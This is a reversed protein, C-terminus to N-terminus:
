PVQILNHLHWNKYLWMVSWLAFLHLLLYMYSYILICMHTYKHPKDSKCYIEQYADCAKILVSSCLIVIIPCFRWFFWQIEGGAACTV